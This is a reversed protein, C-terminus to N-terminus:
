TAQPNTRKPQRPKPKPLVRRRPAPTEGLDPVIIAAPIHSTQTDASPTVGSPEGARASHHLYYPVPRAQLSKTFAEFAADRAGQDSFEKVRMFGPEMDVIERWLVVEAGGSDGGVDARGTAVWELVAAATTTQLSRGTLERRRIDKVEFAEGGEGERYTVRLLPTEPEAEDPVEFGLSELLGVFVNRFAVRTAEDQDFRTDAIDIELRVADGPQLAAEGSDTLLADFRSPEVALTLLRAEDRVYGLPTVIGEDIPIRVCSNVTMRGFRTERRLGDLEATVRHHTLSLLKLGKLLLHTEGMWALLPGKYSYPSPGMDPLRGPVDITKTVAGDKPTVIAVRVRDVSEPDRRDKFATAAVALREGDSSWALGDVMAAELNLVTRSRERGTTMDVQILKPRSGVIALTQGDPSLAARSANLGIVDDIKLRFTPEGSPLRFASITGANDVLVVADKGIALPQLRESLKVAQIEAPKATAIINLTEGDVTVVHRGDPAILPEGKPFSPFRCVESADRVDYLTPSDPMSIASGNLLFPGGGAAATLYSPHGAIPVGPPEDAAFCTAAFSGLLCLSSVIRLNPM